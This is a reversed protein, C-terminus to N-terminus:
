EMPFILGVNESLGMNGNYETEMYIYIGNYGTIDWIITYEWSIGNYVWIDWNEHIKVRITLNQFGWITSSQFHMDLWGFGNVKWKIM